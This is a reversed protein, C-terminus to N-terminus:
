SSKKVKYIVGNYTGEYTGHLIDMFPFPFCYNVEFLKHHNDHDITNYLFPIEIKVGSHDLVGCIGMIMMYAFFTYYHISFLFPPSYLICYYGFAELPHIYMDDFPEPSKYYHHIKHFIRYFTPLHMLRHWYYEVVNEYVVALLLQSSISSFANSISSFSSFDMSNWGKVSYETTFAAFCSAIFLNWTVVYCHYPGRNPKSSFLPFAWLNNLHQEGKKPQCKWDEVEKGKLYYFYFQLVLSHAIYGFFIVCFAEITYLSIM